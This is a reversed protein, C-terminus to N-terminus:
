IRTRRCFFRFGSFQGTRYRALFVRSAVQHRPVSQSGTQRIANAAIMWFEGVIGQDAFFLKALVPGFIDFFQEFSLMTIQRLQVPLNGLAQCGV